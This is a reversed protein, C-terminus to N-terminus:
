FQLFQLGGTEDREVMEKSELVWDSDDRRYVLVYAEPQVASAGSTSFVIREGQGSVAASAIPYPVFLRGPSVSSNRLNYTDIVFDRTAGHKCLICLLPSKHYLFTIFLACISRVWFKSVFSRNSGRPRTPHFASRSRTGNWGLIWTPDCVVLKKTKLPSIGNSVQFSPDLNGLQKATHVGGLSDLTM